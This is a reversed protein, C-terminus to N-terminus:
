KNCYDIINQIYKDPNKRYLQVHDADEFLVIESNTKDSWLEIENYELLPDNEPLLCLSNNNKNLWNNYKFLENEWDYGELKWYSSVVSQLNYDIYNNNIDLVNCIYNSTQMPTPFFPGSDFIIKNSNLILSQNNNILNYLVLSGGSFAHILDYENYNLYKNYCGNNIKKWGTFNIAKLVSYNIVDIKSNKYIKKYMNKYVNIYKSKANFFPVILIRM